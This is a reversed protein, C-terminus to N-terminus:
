ILNSDPSMTAFPGRREVAGWVTLSTVALLAGSIGAPGFRVAAWLLFPLPWYLRAPQVSVHDYPTMFVASDVAILGILLLSAELVRAPRVRISDRNLADTVIVIVPLLMLASLANSLSWHQWALFFDATPDHAVILGAGALASACPAVFVAFAFFALMGRLTDLHLPRGGFRRLGLAAIVARLHNVLETALVFSVSAGAQRHPLFDGATAALLVIWWSRPPLRLLAATVIAYPPFFVGTGTGPFQLWTDARAGWFCGIAVLVATVALRM